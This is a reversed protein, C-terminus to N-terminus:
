WRSVRLVADNRFMVYVRGGEPLVYVYCPQGNEERVQDPDGWLAEVEQRSMGRRTKLVRASGEGRRPERLGGPGAESGTPPADALEGPSAPDASAAADDQWEPSSDALSESMPVRMRGLNDHWDAISQQKRRVAMAAEDTLTPLSGLAVYVIACDGQEVDQDCPIWWQCHPGRCGMRNLGALLPCIQQRPRVPPTREPDAHVRHQVFVRGRGNGM